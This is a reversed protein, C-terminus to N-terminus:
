ESVGAAPTPGEDRRRDIEEEIGFRKQVARLLNLLIAQDPQGASATPRLGQWQLVVGFGANAAARNFQERVRQGWLGGFRDRFDLWAADLDSGSRCRPWSAFALWPALVLAMRGAGELGFSVDVGTLRALELACGAGLALVAVVLRTVLYNLLVVGLTTALFVLHATGLQLTGWGELLPRLLVALLGAVVFNWAGVGPRRAGLVAVGACGILCLAVYPGLRNGDGPRWAEIAFTVLWALWATAAWLIAHGLTARRNCRWARHLPYADTLLVLTLAWSM